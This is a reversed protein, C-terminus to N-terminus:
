CLQRSVCLKAQERTAVMPWKFVHFLDCSLNLLHSTLHYMKKVSYGVPHM